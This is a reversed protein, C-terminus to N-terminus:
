KATAVFFGLVLAAALKARLSFDKSVLGTPELVASGVPVLNSFDTDYYILSFREGEYEQAL